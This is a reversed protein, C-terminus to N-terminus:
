NITEVNVTTECAISRDTGSGGDARDATGDGCNLGDSGEEGRLNDNGGFGILIDSGQGGILENNGANGGLFDEDSGGILGEVDNSIFDKESGVGGFGTGIQIVVTQTRNGYSVRDFGSGGFYEDSGVGGDMFDDGGNGLITNDASSGILTDAANGGAIDEVDPHVDDSELREGDNPRNDLTVAVPKTRGSYSVEDVDPGGIFTDAGLGGDLDDRGAGGNLTDSGDQGFMRDKGALGILSDRGEGGVLRNVVTAVNSGTLTDNNHGGILDEIDTHINDKEGPEGDNAVDDLSLAVANARGSYDAVDTDAGGFMVDAGNAAGGGLLTDRGGDGFMQDNDRGGDIRDAGFGGHLVDPGDAGSLTDDGTGTTVTDNGAGANVIVSLPLPATVIDRLDGTSIRVPKAFATCRVTHADVTTCNIGPVVTDGTDRVTFTTNTLSIAVVNAFGPRATVSLGGNEASAVRTGVTPPAVASATQHQDTGAASSLGSLMPLFLALGAGATVAAGRLTSAYTMTFEKHPRTPRAPQAVAPICPGLADPLAGPVVNM